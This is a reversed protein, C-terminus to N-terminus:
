VDVGWYEMVSKVTSPAKESWSQVSIEAEVTDFSTGDGEIKTIKGLTTDYFFRIGNPCEFTKAVVAGMFDTRANSDQGGTTVKSHPANIVVAIRDTNNFVVDPGWPPNAVYPMLEFQSPKKNDTSGTMSNNGKAILKLTAGDEFKIDGNLNFNRQVCLVVDGKITLSAVETLEIVPTTLMTKTGTQGLTYANGNASIYENSDAGEGSGWFNQPVGFTVENDGRNWFSEASVESQGTPTEYGVSTPYEPDNISGNFSTRIGDTNVGMSSDEDSLSLWLNQGENGPNNDGSNYSVSGGGSNIVGRIIANVVSIAGDGTSPSVISFAHGTDRGMVPDSTEDSSYSALIPRAEGNGHQIIVSLAYVGYPYVGSTSDEEDANSLLSTAKVRVSVARTVDKGSAFPVKVYSHIDYFSDDSEDRVVAVDLDATYVDVPFSLDDDEPSWFNTSVLGENLAHMGVEIGSEAVHMALDYVADRHATQNIHSTYQLTTGLLIAFVTAFIIATLLVAGRQDHRVVHSMANRSDNKKMIM